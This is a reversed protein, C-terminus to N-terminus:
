NHQAYVHIEKYKDQKSNLIQSNMDSMTQLAKSMKECMGGGGM